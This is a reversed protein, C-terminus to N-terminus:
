LCIFFAQSYIGTGFRKFSRLPGIATQKHDEEVHTPGWPMAPSGGRGYAVPREWTSEIRVFIRRAYRSGHGPGTPQDGRDYIMVVGLGAQGFVYLQERPRWSVVAM